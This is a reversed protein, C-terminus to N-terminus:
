ACHDEPRAEQPLEKCHEAKHEWLKGEMMLSGEELLGAGDNKSGFHIKGSIFRIYLNYHKPQM